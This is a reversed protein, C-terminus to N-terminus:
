KSLVRSVHRTCVACIIHVFIHLIYVYPDTLKPYNRNEQAFM